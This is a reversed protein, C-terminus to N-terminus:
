NSLELIKGDKIEFFIKEEPSSVKIGAYLIETSMNSKYSEINNKDQYVLKWDDKLGIINENADIITKPNNNDLGILYVENSVASIWDYKPHILEKKSEFDYIGSKNDNRIEIKGFKLWSSILDYIFPVVINNNNDIIGDKCIESNKVKFYSGNDDLEQMFEYEIPVIENGQEDILGSKLTSIVNNENKIGLSVKYYNGCKILPFLYKPIVIVNCLEDCIGWNGQMGDLDDLYDILKNDIIGADDKTITSVMYCNNPMKFYEKYRSKIIDESNM